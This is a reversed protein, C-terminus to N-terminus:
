DRASRSFPTPRLASPKLLHQLTCDSAPLRPAFCHFYPCRDFPNAVLALDHAAAAHHAHDAGVRLVLLPLPLRHRTNCTHIERPGLPDLDAKGVDVADPPLARVVHETRRAHAGVDPDLIEGFVIDPLDAAHEFLLAAHFAIEALLDRHIDLPQHLDAAVAAQPVPAVERHAALPGAGVCARALARTLARDRLLLGYLRLTPVP